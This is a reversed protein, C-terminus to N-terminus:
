SGSGCNGGGIVLDKL